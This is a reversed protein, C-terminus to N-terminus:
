KKRSLVIESDFANELCENHRYNRAQAAEVNTAKDVRLRRGRMDARDV